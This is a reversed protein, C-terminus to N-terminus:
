YKRATVIIKGNCHLLSINCFPSDRDRNLPIDSSAITTLFLLHIFTLLYYYVIEVHIYFLGTQRNPNPAWVVSHIEVLNPMPWGM